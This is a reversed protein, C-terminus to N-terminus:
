CWPLARRTRVYYASVYGRHHALRYWTRNGHVWSGHTRCTLHLYRGAQRHGIVRYGTGPGSRVNLGAYGTTVRGYTRYPRVRYPAAAGVPRYAMGQVTYHHFRRAHYARRLHHRHLRYASHRRHHIRYPAHHNHDARYQSIAGPVPSSAAADVPAAGAATPLFALVAVTALLGGKLTQRIM